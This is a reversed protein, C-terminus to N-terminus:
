DGLWPALMGGRELSGLVMSVDVSATDRLWTSRTVFDHLAAEDPFAALVLLQREGTVFSVYRVHASCSLAATVTGVAAPVARVWLVAEVPLGLLVPEIVARIWVRGERRLAGLRRWATAESVGAVRALEDYTCRGELM